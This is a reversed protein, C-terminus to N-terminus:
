EQRLVVMPDTGARRAPLWCALLVVGALLAAVAVYTPPDAPTIAFLLHGLVRSTLLAGGLGLAVGMTALRAGGSLVLRSVDGPTAGLALRLGFERTRLGVAFAVVGYLGVASLTIALGAFLGLLLMPYRRDAV